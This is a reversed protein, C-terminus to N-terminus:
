ACTLLLQLNSPDSIDVFCMGPDTGSTSPDGLVMFNKYITPEYGSSVGTILTDLLVPNEPDKIDYSAIGSDTNNGVLFMIDGFVIAQGRFGYDTHTNTNWILEPYDAPRLDWIEMPTPHGYGNQGHFAYPAALFSKNQPATIPTFSTSYAWDFTPFLKMDYLGSGSTRASEYSINLQQGHTPDSVVSYTHPAYGVDHYPTMRKPNRIDSIDFCAAGGSSARFADRGLIYLWGNHMGAAPVRMRQNQGAMQFTALIEGTTYTGLNLGPGPLGQSARTYSQAIQPITQGNAGGQYLRIVEAAGLSRSWVAVEDLILDLNGDGIRDMGLKWNPNVIHGAPEMYTTSGVPVGDIYIGIDFPNGVMALHVWQNTPMSGNFDKDSVGINSFGLLGNTGEQELRFSFDSSEFLAEITSAVDTRQVWCALSWEQSDLNGANLDIIGDPGNLAAALGIKGTTFSVGPRAHGDLRNWDRADEVTGDMPWYGILESLLYDNSLDHIKSIELNDIAVPSSSDLGTKHFVLYITDEAGATHLEITKRGSEASGDFFMIHSDLDAIPLRQGPEFLQYGWGREVRPIDNYLAVMFGHTTGLTEYDFSLRLIEGAQVNTLPLMMVSRNKLAISNSSSLHTFNGAAIAGNAMAVYSDGWTPINDFRWGNPLTAGTVDVGIDEHSGSNPSAIAQWAASDFDEAFYPTASTTSTLSLNDIWTGGADDNITGDGTLSLRALETSAIPSRFAVGTALVAGNVSFELGNTSLRISSNILENVDFTTPSAAVSPLDSQLYHITGSADIYALRGQFGDNQSGDTMLLLEFIEEGASDYGTFRNIKSDVLWNTRIIQTDLSFLYDSSSFDVATGPVLDFDYGIRDLALAKNHPTSADDGVM